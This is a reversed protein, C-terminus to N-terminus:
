FRQWLFQPALEIMWGTVQSQLVLLPREVAAEVKVPMGDIVVILQHNEGPTEPLLRVCVRDM